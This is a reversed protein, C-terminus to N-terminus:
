FRPTCSTSVDRTDIAITGVGMSLQRYDGTPTEPPVDSVMEILNEGRRLQLPVSPFPQMGAWTVAVTTVAQGNLLVTVAAPRRISELGGTLVVNMDRDSVVRITGRGNSWRWWADPGGRETGHWGTTLMSWCGTPTQEDAVIGQQLRSLDFWRGSWPRVFWPNMRVGAAFTEGSCGDGSMVVKLPARGQLLMSLAPMTWYNLPTGAIWGESTVSLCSWPSQQIERSLHSTAGQWGISQVALVVAFCGAAIQALRLRRRVFAEQLSDDAPGGRLADFIAVGVLPLSCILALLRYGHEFRWLRIDSAWVLLCLGAGITAALALPYAIRQLRSRRAVGPGAREVCVLLAAISVLVVAALPLGFLATRVAYVFTDPTLADAEFSNSLLLFRAAAMFSLVAYILVTRRAAQRHAPMWISVAAAAVAILGLVIMATPHAVLIAASLAVMLRWHRREEGLVVILLLPWFLQVVTIAEFVFLLQGPLTVLCIGLASWIFLHPARRQTVWWSAGLAVLPILAYVAGFVKRLVAVDGTMAAALLIPAHIVINILRYHSLFPVRQDLIEFLYGAGDWSLAVDSVVAFVLGVAVLGFFTLADM